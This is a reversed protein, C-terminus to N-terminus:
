NESYRKPSSRVPLYSKRLYIDASRVGSADLRCCSGLACPSRKPALLIARFCDQPPEARFLFSPSQCVNFGPPQLSQQITFTGTWLSWKHAFVLRVSTKIQSQGKNAAQLRVKGASHALISQSYPV